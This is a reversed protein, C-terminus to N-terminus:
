PPGLRFEVSDGIALARERVSGANVELAYRYLARPVLLTESNPTTDEIFDVVKYDSGIFIIDLPIPTNRMWFPDQVDQEFVFWMGHNSGLNERGQLGQSREEPTRVIEVTLTVPTQSGAKLVVNAVSMSPTGGDEQKLLVETKGERQEVLNGEEVKKVRECSLNVVLLLAIFLIYLKKM